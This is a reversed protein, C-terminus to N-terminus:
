NLELANKEGRLASEAALWEKMRHRRAFDRARPWQNAACLQKVFGHMLGAYSPFHKDAVAVAKDFEEHTLHAEVQQEPTGNQLLLRRAGADDGRKQLRQAKIGTIKEQLWRSTFDDVQLRGDSNRSYAVMRHGTRRTTLVEDLVEEIALWEKEDATKLVSDADLAFGNGGLNLDFVFARALVVMWERRRAAPVIALGALRALNTSCEEGADLFTRGEDWQFPDTGASMLGDLIAAYYRGAEVPREGELSSAARLHFKLDRKILSFNVSYEARAVRKVLSGVSRRVKNLESEPLRPQLLRKVIARLKPETEVLQVVLQALADRDHNQLERWLPSATKGAAKAKAEVIDFAEPTHAWALLLAALHKCIGDYEYPCTCRTETIGSPSLTVKLSYAEDESGACVASIEADRRTLEELAGDDFLARGRTLVKATALAAIDGESLAPFDESDLDGHRM